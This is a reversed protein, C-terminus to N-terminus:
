KFTVTNCTVKHLPRDNHFIGAMRIDSTRKIVQWFIQESFNQESFM